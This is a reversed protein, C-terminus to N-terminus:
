KQRVVKVVGELIKVVGWAGPDPVQAKQLEERGVYAARGAKAVLDKTEEAAELAERVSKALDQTSEFTETFASLSDVLTRSPRRASTYEYLISLAHSLASAWLSSDTKDSAKQLGAALANFYISYLAGSTGDMEKEVVTAMNLIAGVM